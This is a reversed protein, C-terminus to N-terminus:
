RTNKNAFEVRIVKGFFDEGNFLNVAKTAAEEDEFYVFAIGKPQGTVEDKVIIVKSM